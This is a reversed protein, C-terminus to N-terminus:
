DRAAFYAKICDVIYDADADSMEPHCGVYFAYENLRAAVPYENDLNGFMRRYAPQNILPLLYRTEIGHEELHHILESRSDSDKSLVLPFFM